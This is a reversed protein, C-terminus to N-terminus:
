VTLAKQIANTLATNFAIGIADYGNIPSVEVTQNKIATKAMQNLIDTPAGQPLTLFTVTQLVGSSIHVEVILVGQPTASIGSYTGDTYAGTPQLKTGSAPLVANSGTTAQGVIFSNNKANGTGNSTGSGSGNNSSGGSNGGSNGPNNGGNGLFSNEIANGVVPINTTFGPDNRVLVLFLILVGCAVCILLLTKNENKFVGTLDM